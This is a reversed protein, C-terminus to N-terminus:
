DKRNRWEAESNLFGQTTQSIVSEADGTSRGNHRDSISHTELRVTRRIHTSDYCQSSGAQATPLSTPPSQISSLLSPITQTFGFPGASASLQSQPSNFAKDKLVQLLPNNAQTSGSRLAISCGDRDSFIPDLIGRWSMGRRMQVVISQHM